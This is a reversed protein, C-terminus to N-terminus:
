DFVKPSIRRVAEIRRKRIEGGLAKGSLGDDSLAHVKIKIAEKLAKRLYPAQPYDDNKRGKRGRACAECSVLFQEFRLPRRLADTQELLKVIEEPPLDFAEHCRRHYLAVLQGLNRYDNPVRLRKCFGEIAAAGAQEHGSHDPRQELPTSCKGMDHVLVAFRVITEDSLAAALDLALQLHAGADIEPHWRAPQPIGFLCDIEPFLPALAGCDRLVRIFRSPTRQSLAKSLETWVREPTLADLEGSAAMERMLELTEPAVKFGLHAFRAAFRAVRLVRLPDEGFAPSVHRLLRAKLDAKGGWPDILRGQEDMAMANITLDRRRLDEELTVDPSTNFAFGHYGRGSKRETRALAYEEGTEAHIFVPFDRGVPKFRRELMAQPTAGVVVWDQETVPLGLLKDRVAGGVLYIDM